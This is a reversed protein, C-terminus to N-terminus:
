RSHGAKVITCRAVVMESVSFAGPQHGPLHYLSLVINRPLVSLLDSYLMCLM